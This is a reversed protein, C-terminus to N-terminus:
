LMRMVAKRVDIATTEPNDKSYNIEFTNLLYHVMSSISGEELNSGQITDSKAVDDNLVKTIIIQLASCLIETLLPSNKMGENINLSPYDKHATNLFLCVNEDTFRDTRPDEWDCMVWWLPENLSKVEHVPFISGNGDIIIRTEDIIGFITGELAALHKEKNNPLGRKKLYLVTQLELTGKLQKESFFVRGSVSYSKNVNSYIEGIPEAGRQNGDPNLWLLAVGIQSGNLAALGQEGFLFKPSRFSCRYDVYLNNEEPNWQAVQDSIKLVTCKSTSTDAPEAKLGRIEGKYHYGFKFGETSYGIMKSLNNTMKPFADLSIGM